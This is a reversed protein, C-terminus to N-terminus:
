NAFAHVSVTQNKFLLCSYSNGAYEEGSDDLHYRQHFAGGGGGGGAPSSEQLTSIGGTIFLYNHLILIM